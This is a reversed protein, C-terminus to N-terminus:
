KQDGELLMEDIDLYRALAGEFRRSRGYFKNREIYDTLLALSDEEDLPFVEGDCEAIIAKEEDNLDRYMAPVGFSFIHVVDLPDIEDANPDLDEYAVAMARIQMVDALLHREGNRESIRQINIMNIRSPIRTAQSYYKDGNLFVQEIMLSEELGDDSYTSIRTTEYEDPKKDCRIRKVKLDAEDFYYKISTVFNGQKEDDLIVLSGDKAVILISSLFNIGQESFPKVGARRMLSSIKWLISDFRPHTAVKPSFKTKSLFTRAFEMNQSNELKKKVLDSM